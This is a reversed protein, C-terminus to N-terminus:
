YESSNSIEKRKESNVNGWNKQVYQFPFNFMQIEIKHASNKEHNRTANHM